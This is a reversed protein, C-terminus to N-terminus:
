KAAAFGKDIVNAIKAKGYSWSSKSGIYCHVVGKGSSLIDKADIVLHFNDGDNEAAYYFAMRGSELKIETISGGSVANKAEEYSDVSVDQVTIHVFGKTADTGIVYFTGGEGIYSLMDSDYKYWVAEGSESTLKMEEYTDEYVPSKAFKTTETSIQRFREQTPYYQAQKNGCASVCIMMGALLLVATMKKNM